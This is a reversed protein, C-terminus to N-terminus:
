VGNGQEVWEYTVTVNVISGGGSGTANFTTVIENGFTTFGVSWSTGNPVALTAANNAINAVGGSTCYVLLNNIWMARNAVSQRNAITTVRLAYAYGNELNFNPSLVIADGNIAQGYALVRGFASRTSFSGIGHAMQGERIAKGNRGMAVSYNGSANNEEGALTISGIGSTDNLYGGLVVSAEGSANNNGGALVGSRLENAFCSVGGLVVSSSGTVGNNEGAFIGSGSADDNISSHRSSIIASSFINSGIYSSEGGLLVTWQNNQGVTHDQGFVLVLNNGTDFNNDQGISITKNANNANNNNVFQVSVGNIDQPQFTDYTTALSYVKFVLTGFSQTRLTYGDVNANDYLHIENVGNTADIVPTDSVKQISSTGYLEFTHYDAYSSNSEFLPQNGTTWFKSNRAVVNMTTFSGGNVFSSVDSGNGIVIISEFESPNVLQASGSITLTAMTGSTETNEYGRYGTITTNRNLEWTGESIETADLSDDIIITAPGDLLARADMLDSWNTYVNNEQVGGPRFIFAGGGAGPPGPPGPPGPEGEITDDLVFKFGDWKLFGPTLITAM